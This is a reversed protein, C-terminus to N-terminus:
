ESWKSNLIDDFDATDTDQGKWFRIIEWIGAIHNLLSGDAQARRECRTKSVSWGAAACRHRGTDHGRRPARRCATEGGQHSRVEGFVGHDGLPFNILHLNANWCARLGPSDKDVYRAIFEPQQLRMVATINWIHYAPLTQADMNDVVPSM